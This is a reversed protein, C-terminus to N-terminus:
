KKINDRNEKITMIGRSTEKKVRVLKGENDYEYFTAYNNDDLTSMLKLSVPDYVFTQMTGDLPHIRIDDYIIDYDPSSNLRISAENYVNPVKFRVQVRKWGDILPQDPSMSAVIQQIIAQNNGLFELRIGGKDKVPALQSVNEKVWGSLLYEKNAQLKFCKECIEGCPLCTYPPPCEPPEDICIKRGIIISFFVIKGDLTSEQVEKISAGGNIGAFGIQGSSTEPKSYKFIEEIQKPDMMGTQNMYDAETMCSFQKLVVKYTAPHKVTIGNEVKLAGEKALEITNLYKGDKYWYYDAPNTSLSFNGSGVGANPDTIKISAQKPEGTECIFSHDAILKLEKVTVEVAGDGTSCALGSEMVRIKYTGVRTFTVPVPSKNTQMDSVGDDNLDLNYAKGPVYNNISLLYTEGKVLPVGNCPLSVTLSQPTEIPMIIVINLSKTYLTTGSANKITLTLPTSSNLDTTITTANNYKLTIWNSKALDTEAQTLISATVGGSFTPLTWTYTYYDDKPFIIYQFSQEDIRNKCIDMAGQLECSYASYRVVPSANLEKGLLGFVKTCETSSVPVPITETACLDSNVRQRVRAYFQMNRGQVYAETFKLDFAFTKSINDTNLIWRYLIFDGVEKTSGVPSSPNLLAIGKPTYLEVYFEKIDSKASLNEIKIYSGQSKLDCGIFDSIHLTTVVSGKPATYNKPLVKTSMQVLDSSGCDKNGLATILFPQEPDYLNGIQETCTSVVRLHLQISTNASLDNLNTVIEGLNWGFLGKAKFGLTTLTSLTSPTCVPLSYKVGAILLYSKPQGENNLGTEYALGDPMNVGLKFGSLITSGQNSITSVFEFGNCIGTTLHNSANSVVLQANKFIIKLKIKSFDKSNCSIPEGKCVSKYGLEAVEVGAGDNGCSEIIARFKVKGRNKIGDYRAMTPIFMFPKTDYPDINAPLDIYTNGGDISYSKLKVKAGNLTKWQFYFDFVGGDNNTELPVEWEAINGNGNYIDSINGNIECRMPILGTSSPTNLTLKIAGRGLDYCDITYVNVGLDPFECDKNFNRELLGINSPYGYGLYYDEFHPFIANGDTLSLNRDPFKQNYFTEFADAMKFNNVRLIPRFENPFAGFYSKCEVSCQHNYEACVSLHNYGDKLNPTGYQFLDFHTKAYIVADPNTYYFKARFSKSFYGAGKPNAADNSFNARVRMKLEVFIQHDFAMAGLQDHPIVVLIRRVNSGVVREHIINNQVTFSRLTIGNADKVFITALRSGSFEFPLELLDGEYEYTIAVSVDNNCNAQSVGKYIGKALITFEDNELAAQLNINASTVNAETIKKQPDLTKAVYNELTGATANYGSQALYGYTTRTVDIDTVRVKCNIDGDEPIVSCNQEDSFLLVEDSNSDFIFACGNDPVNVDSLTCTISKSSFLLCSNTNKILAKIKIGNKFRSFDWPWGSYKLDEVLYFSYTKNGELDTQTNIITTNYDTPFSLELGVPLKIEGKIKRSSVDMRNFINMISPLDATITIPEEKNYEFSGKMDFKISSTSPPIYEHHFIHFAFDYWHCWTNYSIYLQFLNFYPSVNCQYFEYDFKLYFVNGRKLDNYQGEGDLDDFIADDNPLVINYHDSGSVPNQIQLEVPNDGNSNSVWYAKKLRAYKHIQIKPNLWDGNANPHYNAISFVVSQQAETLRSTGYIGISPDAKQPGPFNINVATQYSLQPHPDNLEAFNCALAGCSVKANTLVQLNVSNDLSPNGCDTAYKFTEKFDYSSGSSLETDFVIKFKGNGNNVIVVQTTGTTQDSVLNSVMFFSQQQENVSIDISVEKVPVSGSNKVTLKRTCDVNRKHPKASEDSYSISVKPYVVSFSTQNSETSSPTYTKPIGAKVYDVTLPLLNGTGTQIEYQCDGLIRFSVDLGNVPLSVPNTLGLTISNNNVVPVQYDIGNFTVTTANGSKEFTLGTPLVMKISNITIDSAGLANQIKCSVENVKGTCLEMTTGGAGNYGFLYTIDQNQAFVHQIACIVWLFISFYKKM